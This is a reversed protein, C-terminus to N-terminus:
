SVAGDGLVAQWAGIAQRAAADGALWQISEVAQDVAGGASDFRTAGFGGTATWRGGDEPDSRFLEFGFGGDPDQFFDVCMSGDGAAISELM